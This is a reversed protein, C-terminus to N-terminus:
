AAKAPALIYAADLSGQCRPCKQGPVVFPRRGGGTVRAKVTHTCSACHVEGEHSEQARLRQANASFTYTMNM